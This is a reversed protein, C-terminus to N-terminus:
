RVQVQREQNFLDPAICIMLFIVAASVSDEEVDDLIFSSAATAHDFRAPDVEIDMALCARRYGEA